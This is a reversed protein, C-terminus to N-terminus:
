YGGGGGCPPPNVEDHFTCTMPTATAAQTPTPPGGVAIPAALNLWPCDGHQAPAIACHPSSMPQHPVTGANVFSIRGGAPVSVSAPTVGTATFTVTVDKPTGTTVTVTGFWPYPPAMDNSGGGCATLAAALILAGIPKM